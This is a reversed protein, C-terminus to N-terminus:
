AFVESMTVHSIIKEAEPDRGSGRARRIQEIMHSIPWATMVERFTFGNATATTVLALIIESAIRLGEPDLVQRYQVLYIRIARPFMDPSTPSWRAHRKAISRRVRYASALEHEAQDLLDGGMMRAKDLRRLRFGVNSCGDWKGYTNLLYWGDRSLDRIAKIEAEALQERPVDLLSAIVPRLGEAKLEAVWDAMAPSVAKGSVHGGLRVHLPRGTAGVYRIAGNRPDTLTYVTGAKPADTTM